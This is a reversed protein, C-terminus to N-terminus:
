GAPVAADVRGWAGLLQFVLAFLLLVGLKPALEAPGAGSLADAAALSAWRTPMFSGARRLYEPMIDFPWFAGGLMAMPMALFNTAVATRKPTRFANALAQTFSVAVLAFCLLAATVALLAGTALTPFSLRLAAGAAVAQLGSAAFFALSAELAYRPASVPGTLVRRYTGAEIDKLFMLSAGLSSFLMTLTLLGLLQALGEAQDVAPARAQDGSPEFALSYAGEGVGALYRELAKPDGDAQRALNHAVSLVADAASRAARTMGVGPLSFEEVVARNGAAVSDQMGAPLALAYEIRGEVLADEIDEYGLEILAAAQGVADRVMASLASGDRDVVAARMRAGSTTSGVALVILAPVVATLALTLPRRVLRRIYHTFVNM